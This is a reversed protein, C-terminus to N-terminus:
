LPTEPLIVIANQFLKASSAELSIFNINIEGMEKEYKTM